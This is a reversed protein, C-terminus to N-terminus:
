LAMASSMRCKTRATWRPQEMLVLVRYDRGGLRHSPQPAAAPVLAAAAPPAGAVEAGPADVESM